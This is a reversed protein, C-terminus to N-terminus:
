KPAYDEYYIMAACLKREIKYVKCNTNNQVCMPASRDTGIRNEADCEVTAFQIPSVGAERGLPVREAPTLVTM